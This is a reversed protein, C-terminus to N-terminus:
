KGGPLELLPELENIMVYPDMGGAILKRIELIQKWVGSKRWGAIFAKHIRREYEEVTMGVIRCTLQDRPDALDSLIGDHRISPQQQWWSLWAAKLDITTDERNM